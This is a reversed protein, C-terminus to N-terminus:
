MAVSSQFGYTPKLVNIKNAVQSLHKYTSIYVYETSANNKHIDKKLSRQLVKEGHLGEGWGEGAGVGWWGWWVAGGVVVVIQQELTM